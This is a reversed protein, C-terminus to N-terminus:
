ESDVDGLADADMDEDDKKSKKSSKKDKKADKKSSKSPKEDDESDAPKAKGKSKPAPADEADSDDPKTKGKTTKPAPPAEDDSDDSKAKGKTTKTPPADDDSDDSKAKGKTAKAPAEDDSDDKAKKSKAPPEDDDSDDKAKKKAPAPKEDSEDDSGQAAKLKAAEKAASAKADAKADSKSAAARDEPSEEPIEIGELLMMDRDEATIRSNDSSNIPNHIVYVKTIPRNDIWEQPGFELSCGTGFNHTKVQSANIIASIKSGKTVFQWVNKANIPEDNITADPIITEQKGAKNTRRKANKCDKFTVRSEGEKTFAIKVRAIPNDMKVKKAGDIKEFETGKKKDEDNYKRHTQFMSTIKDNEFAPGEYGDTESLKLQEAILKSSAKNLAWLAKGLQEVVEFESGPIEKGDADRKKEKRIFTADNQVNVSPKGGNENKEDGEKQSFVWNTTQFNVIEFNAHHWEDEGKANIIRLYQPFPTVSDKVGYKNGPNAWDIMVAKEKYKEYAALFENPLVNTKVLQIGNNKKKKYGSM